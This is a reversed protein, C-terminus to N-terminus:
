PGAVKENVNISVLDSEFSIAPDTLDGKLHLDFNLPETKPGPAQQNKLFINQSFIRLAPGLASPDISLHATVDSDGKGKKILKGSATLDLGKGKLELSDIQVGKGTFIEMKSDLSRAPLGSVALNMLADELILDLDKAHLELPIQGFLTELPSFSIVADQARLLFIGQRSVTLDRFRMSFLSFPTLNKGTISIEATQELERLLIQQIVPATGLYIAAAVVLLSLAKAPSKL